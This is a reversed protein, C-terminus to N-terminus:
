VVIYRVALLRDTATARVVNVCERNIFPRGTQAASWALTDLDAEAGFLINISSSGAEDL